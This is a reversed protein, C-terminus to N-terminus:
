HGHKGEGKPTQIPTPPGVEVDGDYEIRIFVRGDESQNEQIERHFFKVIEALAEHSEMDGYVYSM